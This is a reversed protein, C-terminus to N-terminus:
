AQKLAVLTKHLKEFWTIARPEMYPKYHVFCHTCLLTEVRTKDPYFLEAVHGTKKECRDCTTYPSLTNM